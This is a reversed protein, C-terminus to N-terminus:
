QSARTYIVSAPDKYALSWSSQRSLWGDLPCNPRILVSDIEYRKLIKAPQNLGEVDLFDRLVGRHEFIDTRSDIFVRQEPMIWGIYGGWDFENFLRNSDGRARLFEIAHSPYADAIEQELKRESPFLFLMGLIVGGVLVLNLGQRDPSDGPTGYTSLGKLGPALVFPLIMGAPFLMRAHSLGCYLLLITLLLDEIRWRIDRFIATLVLLSITVAFWAGPGSGFNLPAWEQVVALNLPQHLFLDAPYVLLRYGFPNIFLATISSTGVVLLKKRQVRSWPAAEFRGLNSPILGGLFVIGFVILGFPWSGHVNAWVCFLIPIAWIPSRHSSRFKQLILFIALFCFWGLDHMRPGFGVGMLGTGLITAVGAALPDGSRLFALYYIGCSILALLITTLLFIGQWHLVRFVGYYALESLWEYDLWRAGYVTFSYTDVSPFGHNAVMFQANRLHWFIDNDGIQPISLYFVKLVVFSCVVVPFTGIRTFLGGSVRPRTFRKWTKVVISIYSM